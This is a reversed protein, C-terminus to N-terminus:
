LFMIPFCLQVDEIQKVVISNDNAVTPPESGGGLTVRPRVLSLRQNSESTFPRKSQILDMFPDLIVQVEEELSTRSPEAEQSNNTLKGENEAPIQPKGCLSFEM